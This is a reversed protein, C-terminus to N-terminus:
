GGAGGQRDARPRRPTPPLGRGFGPPLRRGDPAGRIELIIRAPPIELERLLLSVRRSVEERREGPRGTVRLRVTEDELVDVEIEDLLAPEVLEPPASMM